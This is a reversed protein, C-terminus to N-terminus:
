GPMSPPPPVPRTGGPDIVENEVPPKSGPSSPLKREPQPQPSQPEPKQPPPTKDKEKDM